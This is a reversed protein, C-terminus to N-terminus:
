EGNKLKISEQLLIRKEKESINNDKLKIDIERKRKDKTQKNLRPILELFEEPTRVFRKYEMIENVVVRLKNSPKGINKVSSDILYRALTNMIYNSFNVENSEYAPKFVKILSPNILLSHMLEYSYNREFSVVKKRMPAEIPEQPVYSPPIYEQQKPPTNYSNTQVKKMGFEKVILQKDVKFYAAIKTAFMDNEIEGSNVLYKKFSEIFPKVSEPDGSKYKTKHIGLIFEIGSVTDKSVKILGEAGVEEFIDDPDKGSDNKVVKVKIGANVLAKISKITANVGANDGDLMLIVESYKLRNLHNKTLSTGMIAISNTIGAKNMAIVDMFGENVYVQKERRISDKAHSYNYLISSKDFIKSEPSNIYKAQSQGSLDRASFGVIRGDDNKITFILRDKFFDYGHENILGLNILKAEDYGKGILFQKLGKSPAYGLLFEEIVKASMHRTELYKRAKAGEETSLNYNFFNSAEKLIEFSVRDQEPIINVKRDDKVVVGVQKGADIVAQPFSVKNYDMLFNFVNGSAGCVFCKYIQKEYSVSMSPNTDEHFPCVAWYNRGKKSLDIYESIVNVIDIQNKITEITEKNM